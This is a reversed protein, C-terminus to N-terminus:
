QIAISVSGLNIIIIYSLNLVFSVGVKVICLGIISKGETHNTSSRGGVMQSNPNGGVYMHNNKTRLNRPNNTSPHNELQAPALGLMLQM